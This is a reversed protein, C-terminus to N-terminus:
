VIRVCYSLERARRVLFDQGRREVELIDGEAGADDMAERFGRPGWARIAGHPWFAHPEETGSQVLRIDGEEDRPPTLVEVARRNEAVNMSFVSGEHSFLVNASADCAVVDTARMGTRIHRLEPDRPDWQFLDLAGEVAIVARGDALHAASRVNRGGLNRRLFDKAHFVRSPREDVAPDLSVLTGGRSAALIMGFDNQRLAVAGSTMPYVQVVEGSTEMPDWCQLCNSAFFYRSSRFSAVALKTSAWVSGGGPHEFAYTQLRCEQKEVATDPVSRQDEDSRETRGEWLAKSEAPAWVSGSECLLLVGGNPHPILGRCGRIYGRSTSDFAYPHSWHRFNTLMGRSSADNEYVIDCDMPRDRVLVTARDGVFAVTSAM